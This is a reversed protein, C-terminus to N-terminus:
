AKPQTNGHLNSVYICLEHMKLDMNIRKDLAKTLKLSM